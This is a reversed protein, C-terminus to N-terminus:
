YIVPKTILEQAVGELSYILFLVLLILLIKVGSLTQRKM